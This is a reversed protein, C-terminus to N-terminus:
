PYLISLNRCDCILSSLLVLNCTNILSPCTFNFLVIILFVEFFIFSCSLIFTLKGGGFSVKIKDHEKIKKSTNKIITNNLKVHGENILVQLRTRSLENIQSQLFRDIRYGHFNLPVITNFIDKKM